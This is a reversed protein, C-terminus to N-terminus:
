ALIGAPIAPPQAFFAYRNACAQATRSSASNCIASLPTSELLPCVFSYTQRALLHEGYVNEAFLCFKAPFDTGAFRHSRGNLTIAYSWLNQYESPGCGPAM